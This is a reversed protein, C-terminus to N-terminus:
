TDGVLHIPRGVARLVTPDAGALGRYSMVGPVLQARWTDERVAVEDEFQRRQAASNGALLSASRLLSLPPSLWAWAELQAEQRVQADAFAAMQPRLRRDIELYRPVFSVPWAHVSQSHPAAVGPHREYWEALLQDNHTEADQLIKRAEVVAFLRSPMGAGAKAHEGLFAPVAFTTLAWVGILGLTGGAASLPLAVVLGIALAWTAAFVAVALLWSCTSETSGGSDLGLAACSALAALLTVAAARIALARMVVGWPRANLSVIWRWRGADRDGLRVGHCASILALPLLMAILWALGITEGANVAPNAMPESRRADFHRTEIGITHGASDRPMLALGPGGPMVVHPGLHRGLDFAEAAHKASPGGPSASALRADLARMWQEYQVAQQERQATADIGGTVGAAFWAIGVLWLIWRQGPERWYRLWEAHWASM